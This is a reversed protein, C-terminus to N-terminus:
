RIRGELTPLYWVCPGHEKILPEGARNKIIKSVGSEPDNLDGFFLAEGECCMVCFPELGQDVRNACMTCKWVRNNTEEMRIADHPCVSACDLCADCASEDILVIGDARRYIAENPCEAICPANECHMCPIPLFHMHLDPHRGEPTDRDKGGITQVIIGSGEKLDHEMMCAVTCTHCGVCRELDIVIGHKETM